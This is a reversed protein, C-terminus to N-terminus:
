SFEALGAAVTSHIAHFFRVSERTELMLHARIMLLHDYAMPSIRMSIQQRDEPPDVVPISEGREYGDYIRKAQAELTEVLSWQRHDRQIFRANLTALDRRSELWMKVTILGTADVKPTRM